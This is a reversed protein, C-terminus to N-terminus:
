LSAFTIKNRLKKIIVRSLIKDSSNLGFFYMLLIYLFFFFCSAIVAGTITSDGLWNRLYWVDLVSAFSLLLPPVVWRDFPFFNYLKCVIFMRFINATLLAILTATAAGIIGYKPILVYNLCVNIFLGLLSTPLEAKYNKTMSLAFGVSSFLAITLQGASLLVIAATPLTFAKGFVLFLDKGWISFILFLPFSCIVMWRSHQRMTHAMAKYNKDAALAAITAGLLSNFAGNFLIIVPVALKIIAYKGLEESGNFYGIMFIDIKDLLQTLLGTIAIVFSYGWFRSINIKPLHKPSLIKTLLWKRSDYLLYCITLLYSLLTGWIVGRLDVSFTFLFLILLLRTSPQIINIAISSKQVKFYARYCGGFLEFFTLLPVLLVMVRFISSFREDHYVNTALYNEGWFWAFLMLLLSIAGSIYFAHVIYSSQLLPKGENERVKRIVGIPFGSRCFTSGTQCLDRCLVFLGYGAPGIAPAIVVGSLFTLIRRVILSLSVVAGAKLVEKAKPQTSSGM